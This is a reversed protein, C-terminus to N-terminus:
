STDFVEVDASPIPVPQLVEICVLRGRGCQPCLSGGAEAHWRPTETGEEDSAEQSGDDGQELLERAQKIKEARFRNALFGFYRIRRFGNPLVHLLFRRIFEEADLTMIRQRSRQRYDRWRFAVKGDGVEVIRHNAIAVRHTYRGLYDLVKEPGGFPPKAYVVWEAKSIPRVWQCFHEPDRLDALPGDLRLKEQRYARELAELFSRRFYRSLVRVPLLFGPRCAIWRKSSSDFGGGPVVCHLHPHFGLSQGWSHLVAMFGIKAGLHKPDAAITRLTKATAQFLLNYILRRNQLGIQAIEDPVTFVVHFYEVPLLEDIRAELWRAKASSQCKPCHRNRCSNYAVQHEGCESCGHVHGGLAATRCVAIANMVRILDLSLRSSNAQRYAEGYQRFIDAVEWAPRVM